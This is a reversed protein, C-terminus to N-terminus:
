HAIPRIPESMRMGGGRRCTEEHLRRAADEITAPGSEFPRLGATVLEDLLREGVRRAVLCRCDSLLDFLPIHTHEGEVAEGPITVRSDRNAGGRMPNRRFEMRQWGRSTFELIVFGRCGGIPSAVDKGNNSAFAALM